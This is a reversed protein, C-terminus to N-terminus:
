EYQDRGYSPVSPSPRGLGSTCEALVTALTDLTAGFAHAPASAYAALVAQRHGGPHHWFEGLGLLALNATAAAAVVQQESPGGRPLRVIAHLGAALGDVSVAPARHALVSVLQDRRQRYAVRMRRVHREYGGNGILEALALQDIAPTGADANRKADVLPAVWADPVVLWGLRLGVALTKGATGAYIVHDPARAQLAAVPQRDYRFEGDYDDEVIVGGTSAAWDLLVARRDHQLFMGLPHQHSPTTVFAPVALQRLMETRAGADDVPVGAVDLGAARVVRRHHPLNPDEMAIAREGRQRLVGAILALGQTYGNVVIINDPHAVV